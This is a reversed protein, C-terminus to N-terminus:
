ILSNISVIKMKTAKELENSVAIWQPSDAKGDTPLAVLLAKRIASIVIAQELKSKSDSCKFGLAQGAKISEDLPKPNMHSTQLERKKGRPENIKMEALLKDVSAKEKQVHEQLKKIDLTIFIILL